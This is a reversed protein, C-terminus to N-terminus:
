ETWMLKRLRDKDEESGFIIDIAGRALDCIERRNLSFHQSILSYENSLASGFVGVDDTQGLWCKWSGWTCLLVACLPSLWSVGLAIPCGMHRWWGFHHDGFTGTIMKAHVNCSLCLELGLKRKKIETKVDDPVNVVHGIRDPQYELLTWLEDPTTTTPAEAFHITIKLGRKKAEEFAPRFLSVDGAAPDGSLDIGVVGQSRYKTALDVVDFATALDNRRDISLILNTKLTSTKNSESICSLVTQVYDDKSLNSSPIARPATRIELYVVGDSAFDSLVSKTTYILSAQDNCIGYIYRSFLPFFRLWPWDSSDRSQTTMLPTERQETAWHSLSELRKSRVENLNITYITLGLDFDLLFCSERTLIMILNGRRCRLWLIRLRLQGGGREEPGMGWSSMASQHKWKFSRAVLVRKAEYFYWTLREDRTPLHHQVRCLKSRVPICTEFQRSVEIKPLSKFDM